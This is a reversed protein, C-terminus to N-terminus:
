VAHEPFPAGPEGVDLGGVQRVRGQGVQPRVAREAPRFRRQDNEVAGRDGLRRGGVPGRRVGPGQEGDAAVAQRAQGQLQALVFGAGRDAVVAALHSWERLREPKRDLCSKRGFSTFAGGLHGEESDPDLVRGARDRYALSEEVVVYVSRVLADPVHFVVVSPTFEPGEVVIIRLRKAGFEPHRLERVRSRHEQIEHSEWCQTFLDSLASFEAVLQRFRPNEGASSSMRRWRAIIDGVEFEWNVLRKRAVPSCLLWRIMNREGPPIKGWDDYWEVASNNWAVIDCYVNVGYVPYPSEAVSDILRRVLEDGPLEGVLPEPLLVEGHALIHMHRREDESLRLVRAISDLVAPSVEKGRGQELYTYWTTSVGALVAVEERRLGPTRRRGAIPFGVERPNIQERRARLFRALEAERGSADTM